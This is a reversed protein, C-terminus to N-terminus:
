INAKNVKKRKIIKKIIIIVIIILVIGLIIFKYENYWVSIIDINDYFIYGLSILISNWIIIGISSFLIYKWLKHKKIGAIFSIYTRCLPILRGFLIAFNGYKEYFSLSDTEEKEKPKFFPVTGLIGLFYCLLAGLLGCASSLAIMVIPSINANYGIAGALPLIVESPLPFCAYELFIALFIIYTGYEDILNFFNDLMSTLEIFLIM